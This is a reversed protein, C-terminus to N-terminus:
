ATRRRRLLVCLGGAALVALTGPEPLADYLAAVDEDTLRRSYIRVEDIYGKFYDGKSNDQTGEGSQGIFWPASTGLDGGITDFTEILKGDVYLKGEIDARTVVIYHWAGTYTQASVFIQKYNDDQESYVRIKGPNDSTGFGVRFFNGTFDGKNSILYQTESSDTQKVMMAYTVPGTCIGFINPTTLYQGGDFRLASGVQGNDVWVPDDGGVSGDAGLTAHNGKDSSDDAQQDDADDFTWYAELDSTLDVDASAMGAAMLIVALMCLGNRINGTTM